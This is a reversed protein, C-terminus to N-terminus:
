RLRKASTTVVRNKTKTATYAMSVADPGDDHKHMPYMEFQELLERQHRQFRIKGSQVDPLLAEIRLSKRTRQKIQKLRTSAPYGNRALEQGLKDAFWEQAMQSEVALVEYQYKLSRKVAEQLLVDPHVREMFIDVLYCIGTSKNRALTAIVSYDGKEKGMAFDIAGIYDIDKDRIDSELFFTFDDSKFIQREEDTPNGLYEQNFAKVGNEERLKMLDLYTFMQPWLTKTGLLMEEKNDEYFANAKEGAEPDDSRYIERWKQWLDERESWSLIAPFKRSVFDRRSKIVYDLLSDFCVITGMYVCIGDRALAPLMEERFWQKSKELLEPTNTNSKSELDDLLFLQPRTNGHRLGRM